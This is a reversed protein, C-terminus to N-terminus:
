TVNDPGHRFSVVSDNTADEDDELLDQDTERTLTKGSDSAVPKADEPSRRMDQSSYHGKEMMRFPKIDGPTGPAGQSPIIRLPKTLDRLTGKNAWMLGCANCLTRPGAPGRRMAPTSKESTGCHQCNRPVSEPPPIGTKPDWNVAAIQYRDREAVFQGNRRHMKQAVEKRCTYRIKKDFCREKRKERFRVLSAIRQSVKEDNTPDDPVMNDMNHRQLLFDSPPVSTSADRGGLLTLVAHVKDPSVAPFVYVEGEFAITLESARRSTSPESRRMPPPVAFRVRPAVEDGDGGSVDDYDDDTVDDDDFRVDDTQHHIVHRRRIFRDDDTLHRRGNAAVNM